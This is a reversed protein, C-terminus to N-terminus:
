KVVVMKNTIVSNLTTLQCLYIGSSVDSADWTMEHFGSLVRGSVLEAVERGLVDYVLLQVDADEPLDFRIKTVPNFPNPYNQHLVYQLPIVDMDTSLIDECGVGFAGMNAGNEGTGVCPSNEALTYDGSDPDCFLPDADINGEGEWGGQINSYIAIVSANYLSIEQQSDNWLICNVLSPTSSDGCIIGGGDNASNGTITINTFIPSSNNWLHVGGGGGNEAINNSIVVNSITPSAENSCHIGGGGFAHNDTIMLNTLMPNSNNSCYIGAGYGYVATNNSIISNELVPSSNNWCMMGAGAGGDSEAINNSIVVNSITPSSYNTCMIGGGGVAHNGTIMLNNLKPNSEYCKIGGGYGTTTGNQITFGSLMATSDEGSNFTVVSGSSDGDIITSYIYSSDQTTLYLSAVVINKGIYNINEVYTGASVLVTDGDISADIAEQITAYEGPVELLHDEEVV